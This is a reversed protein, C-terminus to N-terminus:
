ESESLRHVHAKGDETATFLLEGCPSWATSLVDCGFGIERVAAGTAVDWVRVSGLDGPEGSGTAVLTGAPNWSVTCVSDAHAHLTRTVTGTGVNWLVVNGSTEHPLAPPKYGCSALMSGDPSFAVFDCVDHAHLVHGAAGTAAEWLRVTGDQSGTAVVGGCSWAVSLVSNTHGKLTHVVAGTAVDWILPEGESGTCLMAGDPSWAVAWMYEAGKLVHVTAGTAVDWVIATYDSCLAALMSGDPSWAVRKMRCPRDGKLTRVHMGTGVDWVQVGDVSPSCVDYGCTAFWQGDSSVAMGMWHATDCQLVAVQQGEDTTRQAAAAKAAQVGRGSDPWSLM